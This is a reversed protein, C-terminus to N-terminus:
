ELDKVDHIMITSLKGIPRYNIINSQKATFVRLQNIFDDYVRGITEAEQLMQKCENSRKKTFSVIDEGKELDQTFVLVKADKGLHKMAEEATMIVYKM